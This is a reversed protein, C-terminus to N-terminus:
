QLYGYVPLMMYVTITFHLEWYCSVTVALTSKHTCIYCWCKCSPCHWSHPSHLQIYVLCKYNALFRLLPECSKRWSCLCTKYMHQLTVLLATCLQYHHVPLTHVHLVPSTYSTWPHLNVKNCCPVATQKTYFFTLEERLLCLNLQLKTSTSYKRWFFEVNFLPTGQESVQIYMTLFPLFPPSCHFLSRPHVSPFPPTITSLPCPLSPYHLQPLSHFFPISLTM